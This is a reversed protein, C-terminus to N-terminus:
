GSVKYGAFLHATFSPSEKKGKKEGGMKKGPRRLDLAQKLVSRKLGNVLGVDREAM